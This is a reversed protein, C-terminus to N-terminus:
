ALRVCISAAPRGARLHRHAAARAGDRLPQADWDYIGPGAARGTSARRRHRPEAAWSPPGSPASRRSTASGWCGGCSTKPPSRWCGRAPASCGPMLRRSASSGRITSSSRRALATDLYHNGPVGHRSPAVGTVISLNNPNTLSPMCGRGVHYLGARMLTGQLHPMLGRALADPDLYRPDGGDIVIVVTPQAPLSIAAGMSSSVPGNWAAITRAVRPRVCPARRTQADWGM